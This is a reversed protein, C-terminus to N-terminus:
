YRVHLNQGFHSMQLVLWSLAISCSDHLTPSDFHFGQQTITNVIEDPM